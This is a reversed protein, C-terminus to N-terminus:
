CGGTPGDCSVRLIFSVYTGVEKAFHDFISQAGGVVYGPLSGVASALVGKPSENQQYLNEATAGNDRANVVAADLAESSEFGYRGVARGEDFQHGVM